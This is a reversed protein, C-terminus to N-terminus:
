TILDFRGAYKFASQSKDMCIRCRHGHDIMWSQLANAYRDSIDVQVSFNHEAALAKTRWEDANDWAEQESM